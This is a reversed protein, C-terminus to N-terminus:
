AAWTGLVTHELSGLAQEIISAGRGPEHDFEILCTKGDESGVLPTRSRWAGLSELRIRLSKMARPAIGPGVLSMTRTASTVDKGETSALVLFRTTNEPCDSFGEALVVLGHAEALLRSGLVALSLDRKDALERAAAATDDAPRTAVGWNALRDRCQSLVQPHSSVVHIDELLTGPMALLCHRTASVEEGIVHVSHSLLAEVLGPFCGTLSNEMPIVAHAARGSSVANVASLVSDCPLTPRDPGFVRRAAEQSYAGIDGTFAIPLVSSFNSM